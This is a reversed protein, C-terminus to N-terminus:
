PLIIPYISFASGATYIRSTFGLAANTPECIGADPNQYSIDFFNGLTPNINYFAGGGATTTDTLGAGPLGGPALYTLLAGGDAVPGGDPISLGFTWGPLAPDCSRTASVKLLIVGDSHDVGGPFFASLAAIAANSAITMQPISTPQVGQLEALYTNPYSAATVQLTFPSEQPVCVTFTGDSPDSTASAQPYPIGTPDLAQVSAGDITTCDLADVLQSSLGLDGSPCSVPVPPVAVAPCPYFGGDM